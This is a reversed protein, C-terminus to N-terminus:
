QLVTFLQPFSKFSLGWILYSLSGFTYILLFSLSWPRTKWNLNHKFSLYFIIILFIIMAPFSTVLSLRGETINLGWAIGALPAILCILWTELKTITLKFPREIELLTGILSIAILPLYIFIHSITEDLLDAFQYINLWPFPIIIKVSDFVMHTVIALWWFILVIYLSRKLTKGPIITPGSKPNHRIINLIAYSLILSAALFFSDKIINGWYVKQWLTFPIDSIGLFRIFIYFVALLFIILQFKVVKNM